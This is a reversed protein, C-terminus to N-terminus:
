GRPIQQTTHAPRSHQYMYMHTHTRTHTWASLTCHRAMMHKDPYLIHSTGHCTDTFTQTSIGGRHFCITYTLIWQSHTTHRHLWCIFYQLINFIVINHIGWFFAWLHALPTCMEHKPCSLLLCLCLSIDCLSTSNYSLTTNNRTNTWTNLHNTYNNNIQFGVHLPYMYM